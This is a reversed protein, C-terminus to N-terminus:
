PLSRGREGAGDAESNSVVGLKEALGRPASYGTATYRRYYARARDPDHRQLHAYILMILASPHEPSLELAEEFTRVAEDYRGTFGLIKGLTVRLEPNDPDEAVLQEALARGREVEGNRVLVEAIRGQFRSSTPNLAAAKRYLNLAGGLDGRHERVKGLAFYAIDPAPRAHTVVYSWLTETNKWVGIQEWTKHAYALGAALLCLGLATRALVRHTANGAADWLRGFGIGVLIWIGMTPLYTYRDASAHRFSMFLGMAPALTTLYSVWVTLWLRRGRFALLGVVGSVALVLTASVVYGAGLFDRGPDMPYFPVLTVPIMTHGIYIVASHFANMIRAGLPVITFPIAEGWKAAMNMALALVSLALFPAKERVCPWLTRPTMRYLPYYDLLLLVLPLTVTMPKSLIALGHFLVSLVYFIRRGHRPSERATVFRLYSLVAALFFLSSLVDKREAIWAVSEVRLPHVGFLLAASFATVLKAGEAITRGHPCRAEWTEQLTLTVLFLLAMNMVHLVVSTAHHRSPDKGWLATDVAHSLWTLPHWAGQYNTTVMWLASDLTLSSIHPNETVFAHDDWDVFDNAVSPMFTLLGIFVLLLCTVLRTFGKSM